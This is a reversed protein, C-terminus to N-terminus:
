NLKDKDMPRKPLTVYGIGENRLEDAQEMTVTGTINRVEVEGYHIRKAEETFQQGVNEHTNDVHDYLSKIMAQVEDYPKKEKRPSGTSIHSATPVKNVKRTSCIPCVLMSSRSQKEYDEISKFWGEFSHEDDCILDYIIM